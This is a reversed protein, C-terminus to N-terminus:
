GQSPQRIHRVPQIFNAAGDRLLGIVTGFGVLSHGLEVAASVLERDSLHVGAIKGHEQCARGVDEVVKMVNPHGTQGPVGLGVSLDGMGIYLGDVGDTAAIQDVIRVSEATEVQIFTMTTRNTEELFGDWDAPVSFNTHPRVLLLGRAGLPPYKSIEVALKVEDMTNIQPFMVGAAGGDLGRSVMARDSLPVRVIAAIQSQRSADILQRVQDIAFTGHEMDVLVVGFGSDALVQMVGPAVLESQLAVWVVDGQKVSDRVRQTQQM